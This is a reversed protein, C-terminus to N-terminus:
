APKNGEVAPVIGDLLTTNMSSSKLNGLTNRTFKPISLLRPLPHVAVNSPNNVLSILETTIRLAFVIFALPITFSPPKVLSRITPLLLNFLLILVAITNSFEIM